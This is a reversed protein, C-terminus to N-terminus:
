LASRPPCGRNANVIRKDRAIGMLMEATRPGFTLDREIMKQFSGHPLSEKAALLTRGLELVGDVVATATKKHIANIRKIWQARTCAPAM